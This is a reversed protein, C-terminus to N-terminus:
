SIFFESCLIIAIIGHHGMNLVNLNTRKQDAPPSLAKADITLKATSCRFLGHAVYMRHDRENWRAPKYVESSNWALTYKNQVVLSDNTFNPCIRKFLGYLGGM